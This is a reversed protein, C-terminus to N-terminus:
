QVGLQGGGHCLLVRLPGQLAYLLLLLLLQLCVELLKLLLLLLLLHSWCLCLWLGLRPLLGLLLEQLIWPLLRLAECGGPLRLL